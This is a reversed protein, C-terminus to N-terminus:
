CCGKGMLVGGEVGEEQRIVEGPSGADEVARLPVGEGHARAGM